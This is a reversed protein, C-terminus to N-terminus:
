TICFVLGYSKSGDYGTPFTAYYDLKERIEINFDSNVPAKLAIKRTTAIFRGGVIISNNNISLNPIM